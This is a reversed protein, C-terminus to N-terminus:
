GILSWYKRIRDTGSPLMSTTITVKIDLPGQDPQAANTQFMKYEDPSLIVKHDGNDLEDVQLNLGAFAGQNRLTVWQPNTLVLVYQGGPPSPPQSTYSNISLLLKNSPLVHSTIFVKSVQM